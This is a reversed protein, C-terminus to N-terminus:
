ETQRTPLTAAQLILRLGQAAYVMASVGLRRWFASHSMDGEQDFRCPMLHWGSLYRVIYHIGESARVDTLISSPVVRLNDPEVPRNM